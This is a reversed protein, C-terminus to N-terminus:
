QLGLRFWGVNVTDGRWTYGAIKFLYEGPGFASSNLELRMQKNSDRAIRRLQMIRAAGVKDITVLFSNFQTDSMDVNLELLQPPNPWGLALAPAAEVKSPVIRYTRVGAPARVEIAQSQAQVSRVQSNMSHNNIAFVIWGSAAIVSLAVWFIISRGGPAPPANDEDSEEIEEIDGPNLTAAIRTASSPIAPFIGTESDEIPQKALRAKLRVPIPLETLIQPHELCFKEFRRAERVTLEGSMYREVIRNSQLYDHDM